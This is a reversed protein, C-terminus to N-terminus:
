TIPVPPPDAALWGDLFGAGSTAGARIEFAPSNCNTVRTWPAVAAGGGPALAARARVTWTHVRTIIGQILSKMKVGIVRPELPEGYGNVGERAERELEFRQLERPVAVGGMGQIYGAFDGADAAARTEEFLRLQAPGPTGRLSTLDDATIAERRRRFERYVGVPPTGFFQFQRIRWVWAWLQARLANTSPKGPMVDEGDRTEGLAAGTTMKSVYKALYSAAGGKEKTIREVKFRAERAGIEDPSEELAYDRLTDMVRAAHEPQVWILLHWHPTADHHPEAVRMGFFAIGARHLVARARAWLDTFYEQTENPMVGGWRPNAAGSAQLRAHYRSPATWTVFLGCWGGSEAVAEMGKLRVMMESFRIWPRATSREALEALTFVQGQENVAELEALLQANRQRAARGREFNRHSVYLGARASVEGAEVKATEIRRALMKRARLRWWRHAVLRALAARMQADCPCEPLEPPDIEHRLAYARCATLAARLDASEGALVQCEAARKRAWAKLVVDSTHEGLVERAAVRQIKWEAAARRTREVISRAEAFFRRSAVAESGRARERDFQGLLQQKVGFPLGVLARRRAFAHRFEVRRKDQAAEQVRIDGAFPNFSM